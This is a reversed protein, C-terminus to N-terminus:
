GRGTNSNAPPANEKDAAKGHGVILANMLEFMADM